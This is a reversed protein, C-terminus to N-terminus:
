RENLKDLYYEVDERWSPALYVVKEFLEKSASNAETYYYAKALYWTATLHNPYKKLKEECEKIVKQYDGMDELKSMRNDFDTEWAKRFGTFINQTTQLIKFFVWLLLACMSIFAYVRITELEKLIEAEM